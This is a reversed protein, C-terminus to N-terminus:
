PPRAASAAGFRAAADAARGGQLLQVGATYEATARNASERRDVRALFLDLSLMIGIMVITGLITGLFMSASGVRAAFSATAPRSM